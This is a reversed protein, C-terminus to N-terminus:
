RPCTAPPRATARTPTRGAGVCPPPSGVLVVWMWRPRTTRAATWSAALHVVALVVGLVVCVAVIGITRLITLEAAQERATARALGIAGALVVLAALAGIVAGDSVSRGSGEPPTVTAPDASTTSPPRPHGRLRGVVTGVVAVLVCAILAAFPAGSNTWSPGGSSVWRIVTLVVGLLLAALLVLRNRLVTTARSRFAVDARIGATVTAGALLVLALLPGIETPLAGRASQARIM